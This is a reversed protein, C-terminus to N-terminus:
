LQGSFSIDNQIKRESLVKGFTGSLSFIKVNYAKQLAM